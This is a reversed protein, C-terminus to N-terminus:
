LEAEYITGSVRIQVEIQEDSKLNVAEIILEGTQEDIYVHDTGDSSPVRVDFNITFNDFYKDSTDQLAVINNPNYQQQIATLNKIPQYIIQQGNVTDNRATNILEQGGINQFLLDQIVATPLIDEDFQVTDIPATKVPEKKTTQTSPSINAPLASINSPSSATSSVSAQGSPNLAKFRQVWPDFEEQLTGGYRVSFPSVGTIDPRYRLIDPYDGYSGKLFRNKEEETPLRDFMVGAITAADYAYKSEKFEPVGFLDLARNLAQFQPEFLSSWMSEAEKREAPTRDREGGGPLSVKGAMFSKYQKDMDIRVLRGTAAELALREPDEVNWGASRLIQAAQQARIM